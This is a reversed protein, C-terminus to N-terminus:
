FKFYIFDIPNGDYFFLIVTAISVLFLFWYGLSLKSIKEHLNSKKYSIFHLSMFTVILAVPIKNKLIILMAEDVHFDLIVFKYLSYLLHDINEVRFAILSFFILYQTVVISFIFGLKSKFFPLSRM